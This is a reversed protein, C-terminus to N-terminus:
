AHMAHDIDYPFCVIQHALQVRGIIIKASIADQDVSILSVKCWRM